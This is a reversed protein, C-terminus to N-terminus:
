SLDKYYRVTPLARYGAKEYSRRAPAHSPDGGTGLVALKMGSEKLRDLAFTNMETGVGGNQYDPHVALLMIEGTEKEFDLEYSLFGAVNGDVEAVWTTYKDTEKCIETVVETQSTRWDPLIFNYITPGLVQEFSSFVPAWAALSLEVIADMDDDAMPRIHLVM